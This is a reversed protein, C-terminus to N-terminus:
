QQPNVTITGTEAPHLACVYNLTYPVFMTISGVIPGLASTDLPITVAGAGINTVVFSKGNVAAKWAASPSGTSPNNYGLKVTVGTEPATGSVTLSAPSANSVTTVNLPNPGLALDSSPSHPPIQFAFWGTQNDASPAPWHDHKDNNVWTLNDGANVIIAQPNFVGPQTSSKVPNPQIQIQQTSM